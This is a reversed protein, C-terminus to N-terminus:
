GASPNAYCYLCANGCKMSYSGIDFSETCGCLKRQGQAKKVSAGRCQFSNLFVGDVCSSGPFGPSACYLLTMGAKRAERELLLAERVREEPAPDCISYGSKKIRKQVKGYISMWSTRCTKIGASSVAKALERFLYINAYGAKDNHLRLLPDFRWSVLAPSKVTKILEPLMAIINKAPPIGPEIGTGGLGTLTLHIYVLPLSIILRNLGDNILINEPNKTWIVLAQLDGTSSIESVKEKLYAPYCAVLDTRRSASIVKPAM